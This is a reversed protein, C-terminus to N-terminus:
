KNCWLPRCNMGHEGLSIHNNSQLILTSQDNVGGQTSPTQTGLM